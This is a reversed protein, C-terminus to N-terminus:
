PVKLVKIYYIMEAHPPVNPPSGQEGYALKPPIFFVAESGERMTAIGEEWGEIVMGQGLPFIFPKDTETSSDVLKGSRLYGAYHVAVNKGKTPFNGTGEKLILYKLGSRNSQIPMEARTTKNKYARILSDMLLTLHAHDFQTSAQREEWAAKDLIDLCVIDYAIWDTNALSKPKNKLTDIRLFTTVSDGKSMLSLLQVTALKWEKEQAQAPMEVVSEGEQKRSRFFVQDGNRMQAHYLVFQGVQPKEGQQQTHKIYKFGAPTTALLSDPPLITQAISSKIILLNFILFIIGKKM